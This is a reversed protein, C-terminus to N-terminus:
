KNELSPFKFWWFGGLYVVSKKHEKYNLDYRIKTAVKKSGIKLILQELKDAFFFLISIYKTFFRYLENLFLVIKSNTPFHNQINRLLKYFYYFRKLYM